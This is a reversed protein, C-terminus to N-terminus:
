YSSHPVMADQRLHLAALYDHNRFVLIKPIIYMGAIQMYMVQVNPGIPMYKSTMTLQGSPSVCVQGTRSTHCGSWYVRLPKYMLVTICVSVYTPISYPLPPSSIITIHFLRWPISPVPITLPLTLGTTTPSRTLWVVRCWRSMVLLIRKGSMKVFIHICEVRPWKAVKHRDSDPRKATFPAPFCSGRM